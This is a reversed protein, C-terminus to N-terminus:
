VRARVCVIPSVQFLTGLTGLTGVRVKEALGAFGRVGGSKFKGFGRKMLEASITRSTFPKKMGQKTCWDRSADLLEKNTVSSDFEEMFCDEIWQGFIDENALYDESALAAAAPITGLGM